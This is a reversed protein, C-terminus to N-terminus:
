RKAELIKKLQALDGEVMKVDEALAADTVGPLRFLTFTVESGHANAVVRLPNYIPTGDPLTIYNDLVGFTNRDAFRFSADGGARMHVVWAGDKQDVGAAFSPIWEPLHRPDSCYAYVREPKADISVSIIRTQMVSSM